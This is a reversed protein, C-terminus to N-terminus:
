PSYNDAVWTQLVLLSAPGICVELTLHSLHRGALDPTEKRTSLAVSLAESHLSVFTNHLVEARSLIVFQRKEM